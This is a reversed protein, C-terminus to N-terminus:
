ERGYKDKPSLYWDSSRLRGKLVKLIEEKWDDRIEYFGLKQSLIEEKQGKDKFGLFVQIEFLAEYIEANVVLDGDALQFTVEGNLVLYGDVDIRTDTFKLTQYEM